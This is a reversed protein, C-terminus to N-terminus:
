HFSCDHSAETAWPNLDSTKLSCCFTRHVLQLNSCSLAILPFSCYNLGMYSCALSICSEWFILRQLKNTKSCIKKQRELIRFGLNITSNVTLSSHESQWTHTHTKVLFSPSSVRQKGGTHQGCCHATMHDTLFQSQFPESLQTSNTQTQWLFLHGRPHAVSPGASVAFPHM